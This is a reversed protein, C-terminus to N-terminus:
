FRRFGADGAAKGNPADHRGSFHPRTAHHPHIAQHAQAGHSAPSPLHPLEATVARRPAAGSEPARYPLNAPHLAAGDAVKFFAVLQQLSEAQSAMEEATSSLEEAASANRQTVQDVIGMAKSVQAVGSSQEQSAASVEAVLNATRRIAPVLGGILKGSREAIAVSGDATEGIEKAAKQSREALKRVEAAVVAFGRGHDGARAAEIAANLALLNTQYAIEEIISTREAITRMATVTDEVAKGGDEAHGAQETAMAETQRSNEANQTISASMEELSSTTEEVSAAQEGTGQSLTQSTISVQNSAATLADAGARVEGIVQSVREIMAAMAGQLRGLEDRGDVSIRARLDGAAIEDAVQVAGLLPTTITRTIWLALLVAALAVAVLASTVVTRASVYAREGAAVAADVQRGEGEAVSAWGAAVRDLAPLLERGVVRRAEAIDGREFSSVARDIAAGYAVRRQALDGYLSRIEDNAAGAEGAKVVEAAKRRIEAIEALKGSLRSVDEEMAAEGVAVGQQAALNVGQFGIQAGKWREHGVEDLGAKVVGMQGVAFIGVATLSATVMLFALVLRIGIPLNRM